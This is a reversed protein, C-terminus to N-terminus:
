RIRYNMIEAGIYDEISVIMKENKNGDQLEVYKCDESLISSEIDMINSIIKFNKSEEKIYDMAQENLIQQGNSNLIPICSETLSNNNNNIKDLIELQYSNRHSPFFVSDYAIVLLPDQAIDGNPTKKLPAMARLSFAAKMPDDPDLICDRMGYGMPYPATKVIGYVKPGIFEYSLIRHSINEQVVTRHREPTPNIPHGAEGFWSKARLLEQVNERELGRKLTAKPYKRKNRNVETTDQLEARIVAYKPTANLIQFSNIQEETPAAESILYAFIGNM